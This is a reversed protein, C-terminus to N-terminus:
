ISKRRISVLCLIGFLMMAYTSPEPVSTVTFLTGSSSSGLTILGGSGSGVSLVGGTIPTNGNQPFIVGNKNSLSIIGNSSSPLIPNANSAIGGTSLNLRGGGLPFGTGAVVNNNSGPLINILAGQAVIISNNSSLVTSNANILVGSGLTLIGSLVSFSVNPATFILNDLFLDGDASINILSDSTVFGGDLKLSGACAFSANDLSTTLDGSCGTNVISATSIANASLPLFAFTFLVCLFRLM